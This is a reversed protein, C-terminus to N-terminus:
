TVLYTLVMGSISPGRTYNDLTVIISLALSPWFARNWSERWATTTISRLTGMGKIHKAGPSSDNPRLRM